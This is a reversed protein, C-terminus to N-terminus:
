ESKYRFFKTNYVYGIDTDANLVAIYFENGECSTNVIGQVSLHYTESWQYYEMGLLRWRFGNFNLFRVTRTSSAGRARKHVEYIVDESISNLTDTSVTFNGNKIEQRIENNKKLRILLIVVCAAPILALLAGVWLRRSLIGAILDLAAFPVFYTLFWDTKRAYMIKQYKLLDDIIHERTLEDKVPKEM